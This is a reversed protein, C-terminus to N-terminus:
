VEWRPDFALTPEENRTEPIQLADVGERLHPYTATFSEFEAPSVTIRAQALLARVIADADPPEPTM